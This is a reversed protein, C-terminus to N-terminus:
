YSFGDKADWFSLSYDKLIAGLRQQRNSYAFSAIDRVSKCESNPHITQIQKLNVDYVRLHDSM